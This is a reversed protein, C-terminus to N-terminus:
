SGVGPLMPDSSQTPAPSPVAPWLPSTSSSFRSGSSPTPTAKRVAERHQEKLQVLRQAVKGFQKTGAPTNDFQDQTRAIDRQLDDAFARWDGRSRSYVGKFWESPKQGRAKDRKKEAESLAKRADAVTKIKEDLVKKPANNGRMKELAAEERALAERSKRLTQNWRKVGAVQEEVSDYSKVPPFFDGKARTSTWSRTSPTERPATPARLARVLEQRGWRDGGPCGRIYDAQAVESMGFTEKLGSGIMRCYAASPRNTSSTGVGVTRRQVTGTGTLAEQVTFPSTFSLVPAGRYDGIHLNTEYAGLGQSDRGTALTKTLDVPSSMKVSLGNEQAVIEDYQEISILYARGLFSADEDADGIFAIGGGWVSSNLAFHPRFGHVRIPISEEPRTKDTCGTYKRTSGPPSGGQIYALLRDENLNSGYSAYWVHTPRGDKGLNYKHGHTGPPHLDVAGQAGNIAREQRARAEIHQWAYFDAGDPIPERNAQKIKQRISDKHVAGFEARDLLFEQRDRWEDLEIISPPECFEGERRLAEYLRETERISLGSGDAALSVSTSGGASRCKM